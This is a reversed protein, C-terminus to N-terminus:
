ANESKLMSYRGLFLLTGVGLEVLAYVYQWGISGYGMFNPKPLVLLALIVILSVMPRFYTTISNFLYTTAYCMLFVGLMILLRMGFNTFYLIGPTTLAVLLASVLITILSVSLSILISTSKKTGMQSLNRMTSATQAGACIFYIMAATAFLGGFSTALMRMQQFEIYEGMIYMSGHIVPPGFIMRNGFVFFLWILLVIGVFLAYDVAKKRLTLLFKRGTM